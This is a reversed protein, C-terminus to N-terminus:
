YPYAPVTWDVWFTGNPYSRQLQAVCDWACAELHYAHGTPIVRSGQDNTITCFIEFM